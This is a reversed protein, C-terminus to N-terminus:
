TRCHGGVTDPLGKEISCPVYGVSVTYRRNGPSGCDSAGLYGTLTMIHGLSDRADWGM